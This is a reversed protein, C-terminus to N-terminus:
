QLRGTVHHFTHVPSFARSAFNSVSSIRSNSFQFRYKGSRMDAKMFEALRTFAFATCRAKYFFFQLLKFNHYDTNTWRCLASYRFMM